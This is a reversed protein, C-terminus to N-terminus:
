SSETYIKIHDLLKKKSDEDLNLVKSNILLDTLDHLAKEKSQNTLLDIEYKLTFSKFACFLGAFFSILGIVGYTVSLKSIAIGPIPIFTTLGFAMFMPFIAFAVMMAVNTAYLSIKLNEVQKYTKM